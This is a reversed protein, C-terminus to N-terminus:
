KKLEEAWNQVVIFEAANGQEAPALIYFDKADSTVAYPVLTNIGTFIFRHNFLKVPTGIELGREYSIPVAM